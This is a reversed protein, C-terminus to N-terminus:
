RILKFRARVTKNTANCNSVRLELRESVLLGAALSNTTAGLETGDPLHTVFRPRYVISSSLNTVNLYEVALVNASNTVSVVQVDCTTAADPLEVNIALVFGNHFTSTAVSATGNTSVNTLQLTEADVEGAYVSVAAVCIGVAVMLAILTSAILSRM